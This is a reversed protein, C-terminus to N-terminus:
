KLSLPLTSAVKPSLRNELVVPSRKCRNKEGASAFISLLEPYEAEADATREAPVQDPAPAVADDGGHQRLRAARPRLLAVV